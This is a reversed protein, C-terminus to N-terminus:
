YAVGIAAHIATPDDLLKLLAGALDARGISYGGRVSRNIAMRYRGTPPKGTLRPPRVITWGLDSTRIVAEMRAMDLYLEKIFTWMAKNLLKSPLTDDKDQSLPAATIAILRMVGASRMAQIINRAGESYLTTPTRVASTAGLTSIVADCGAMASVLTTPDLVDGRVVRLRDHQIDIRAPNRALATVAHGATLAQRMVQLGTHRTAGIVLLNRVRTLTEKPSHGNDYESSIHANALQAM